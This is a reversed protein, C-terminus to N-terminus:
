HPWLRFRWSARRGRPGGVGSAGALALTSGGPTLPSTREVERTFVEAFKQVASWDTYEYDRSSDTDGGAMAVFLKVLFRDLTGYQSYRLAGAFTASLEPSWGVARLFSTVYEQATAPKAGPGGASLSVSFFAGCRSALETRHQALWARLARPHHGYHISAGVLVADFLMPRSQVDAEDISCLSVEHDRQRLVAAM